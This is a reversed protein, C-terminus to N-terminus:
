NWLSDRPGNEKEQEMTKAYGSVVGKRNTTIIEYEWAELHVVCSRCNRSPPFHKYFGKGKRSVNIDWLSLDDNYKIRLQTGEDFKLTFVGGRYEIVEEIDGELVILDNSRGQIKVM